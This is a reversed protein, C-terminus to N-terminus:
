LTEADLVVGKVVTVAGQVLRFVDKPQGDQILVVDYFGNRKLLKTDLSSLRVSVVGTRAGPELTIVSDGPMASDAELVPPSGRRYSVAMKARMGALSQAVGAVEYVFEVPFTAGQNITIAIDAAQPGYPSVAISPTSM